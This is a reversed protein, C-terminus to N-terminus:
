KDESCSATVPTGYDAEFLPSWNGKYHNGNGTWGHGLWAYKGRVLLFTALDQMIAQWTNLKGIHYKIDYQLVACAFLPQLKPCAIM